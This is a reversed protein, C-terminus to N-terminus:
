LAIGHMACVISDCTTQGDTKYPVYYSCQLSFSQRLVHLAADHSIGFPESLATNLLRSSIPWYYVTCQMCLTIMKCPRRHSTPRGTHDSLATYYVQICVVAEYVSGLSFTRYWAYFTFWNRWWSVDTHRDFGNFTAKEREPLCVM